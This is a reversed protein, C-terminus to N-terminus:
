SRGEDSSAANRSSADENLSRMIEPYFSSMLCYLAFLVSFGLPWRGEIGLMLGVQMGGIVILFFQLIMLAGQIVRGIKLKGNM